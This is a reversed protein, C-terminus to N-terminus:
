RRRRHSAPPRGKSTRHRVRRKRCRQRLRKSITFAAVIPGQSERVAVALGSSPGALALLYASHSISHLDLTPLSRRLEASMARMEPQISGQRISDALAAVGQAAAYLEVIAVDQAFHPHGAVPEPYWGAQSSNSTMMCNRLAALREEPDGAVVPWSRVVRLLEAAPPWPPSMPNALTAAIRDMAGRLRAIGWVCSEINVARLDLNPVPVLGRAFLADEITGIDTLPSNPLRDDVPVALVHVGSSAFQRDMTAATRGGRQSSRREAVLLIGHQEGTMRLQGLLQFADGYGWKDGGKCEVIVHQVYRRIGASAVFDFQAIDGERPVTWLLDVDVIFGYALFAGAM